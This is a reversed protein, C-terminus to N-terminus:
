LHTVRRIQSWIGALTLLVVFKVGAAGMGSVATAMLTIDRESGGEEICTVHTSLAVGGGPFSEREVSSRVDGDCLWPGSVEPWILGVVISALFAGFLAIFVPHLQQGKEKQGDVAEKTPDNLRCLLGAIRHDQLQLVSIIGVM